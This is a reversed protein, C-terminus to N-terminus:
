QNQEKDPLVEVGWGLTYDDDSLRLMRVNHAVRAQVRAPANALVSVWCYPRGTADITLRHPLIHHQILRFEAAAVEDDTAERAWILHPLEDAVGEAGLLLTAIVKPEPGTTM